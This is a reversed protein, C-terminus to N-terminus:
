NPLCWHVGSFGCNTGFEGAAQMASALKEWVRPVGFFLTPRVRLLTDKLTGKLAYSDAFHVVSGSFISSFLDIGMGAIHSLPLYSIVEETPPIRALMMCCVGTINEHTLEVAKPNGTTGSTYVLASVAKKDLLKPKTLLLHLSDNGRDLFSQYTMVRLHSSKGELLVVTLQPFDLLVNSYTSNLLELSELVLVRVDSTKLIHAAQDYTNSLYIGSITWEAALAGLAAFFWRPQNFAHVAVGYQEHKSATNPYTAQLSRAFQQVQDYYEAWTYMTSGDADELAITDCSPSSRSARWALSDIVNETGPMSGGLEM